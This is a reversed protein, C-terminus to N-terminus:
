PWPVPKVNVVYRRGPRAAGQGAGGQTFKGALRM